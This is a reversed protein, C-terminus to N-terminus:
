KRIIESDILYKIVKIEKLNNIADFTSELFIKANKSTIFGNGFYRKTQLHLEFYDLFKVFIDENTALKPDFFNLNLGSDVKIINNSLKTFEEKIISESKSNLKKKIEKAKEQGLVKSFTTDIDLFLSEALDHTLSKELVTLKNLKKENDRLKNEIPVLILALLAVGYSHDAVSEIESKPVKGIWGQRCLEKLRSITSFLNIENDINSLELIDRIFELIACCM